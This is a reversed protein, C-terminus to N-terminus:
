KIVAAQGMKAQSGSSLQTQTDPSDPPWKPTAFRIPKPRSFSDNKSWMGCSEEVRGLGERNPARGILICESVLIRTCQRDYRSVAPVCDRWCAVRELTNATGPLVDEVLAPSNLTTRM